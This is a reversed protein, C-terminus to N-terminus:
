HKLDSFQALLKGMFNFVLHMTSPMLVALTQNMDPWAKLSNKFIFGISKMVGKVFVNCLLGTVTAIVAVGNSSNAWSLAMTDSM